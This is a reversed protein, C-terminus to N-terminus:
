FSRRKLAFIQHATRMFIILYLCVSIKKTWVIDLGLRVLRARAGTLVGTNARQSLQALGTIGPKVSCRQQWHMASYELEQVLADPRPGVFSMHGLLVNFFQPIEDLHRARMFRGVNTVREDDPATRQYSELSEQRSKHNEFIGVSRLKDSYMSRFKYIPFTKSNRGVRKQVFFIPGRSEL